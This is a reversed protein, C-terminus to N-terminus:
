GRCGPCVDHLDGLPTSPGPYGIGALNKAVAALISPSRMQDDAPAAVVSIQQGEAIDANSYAQGHADVWCILDPAITIPHNCSARWALLSENQLSITVEEGEGNTVTVLGLDFGGGPTESITKITGTTLVTGGLQRAADTAPDQSTRLLEGMNRARTMTGHIAAKKADSGQMAWFAVGADDPFTGSSIIGRMAEDAAEAGAVDYVLTETGDALVIPAPPLGAAAYTAWPLTPMARDAGAADVIPLDLQTSVYIPLLTNAAGVEGPLVYELKEQGAAERRKSLQQFATVAVSADFGHTAAKPSGAGASVAMWAADPLDGPQIVEVPKGAKLITELLQKGLNVPGGGGSGLFAAGNLLDSLEQKGWETTKAM